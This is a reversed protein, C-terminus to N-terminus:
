LRSFGDFQALMAADKPDNNPGIVFFLQLGGFPRVERGPTASDKTVANQIRNIIQYTIPFLAPM